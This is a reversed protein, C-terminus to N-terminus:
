NKHINKLIASVETLERSLSIVMAVLIFLIFIIVQIVIVDGYNYSSPKVKYPETQHFSPLNSLLREKSNKTSDLYYDNRRMPDKKSYINYYDYGSFPQGNLPKESYDFEGIDWNRGMSEQAIPLYVNEEPPDKMFYPNFSYEDDGLFGTGAIESESPSYM